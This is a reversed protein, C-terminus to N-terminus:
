WVKRGVFDRVERVTLGAISQRGVLIKFTGSMQDRLRGDNTLYLEAVYYKTNAFGKYSAAAELGPASDTSAPLVASVEADIPRYWSDLLLRVQQNSRVENVEFQPVFMRVRLRSTDAIETVM